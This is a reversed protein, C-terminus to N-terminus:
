RAPVPPMMPPRPPPGPPGAPGPGGPPPGAPGPTPWQQPVTIDPPAPVRLDPYRDILATYVQRFGQPGLRQLEADRGALNPTGDPNFLRSRYYELKQELSLNASFPARGPAFSTAVQDATDDIWGSLDDAISDLFNPQGPM